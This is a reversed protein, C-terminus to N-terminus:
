GGARIHTILEALHEPPTDKNVGHGLNFIFPRGKNAKLIRSAEQKMPEGGKLLLDPDLNGQLAVRKPLNNAAWEIDIKQDLSIADIQTLVAYSSLSAQPLTRPFGIIPVKPYMSKLILVIAATPEVVWRQPNDCKGAWSDFLQIVEAGAKIQGEVYSITIDIIKDMLKEFVAPNARAQQRAKDFNESSGGELMYCAVTWPAGAFGILACKEPLQEKVKRITEFVPEAKSLDPKLKAVDCPGLRPGEGEVFDVEQGLFHPVVLIDSFVIAADVGYRKVPQLTVEAALTPNFCLDLFSGAQKRVDRYEPLYRGAQRMFWCPPPTVTKGSLVELLPKM